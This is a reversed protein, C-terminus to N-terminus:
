KGINVSCDSSRSSTRDNQQRSSEQSPALLNASLPPMSERTGISIAKGNSYDTESAVSQSPRSSGFQRSEYDKTMRDRVDTSQERAWDQMNRLRKYAEKFDDIDDLTGSKLRCQYYNTKGTKEEVYAYHGYINYYLGNTSASVVSAEGHEDEQGIYNLAKNRAYVMAAGEYGSKREALHLDEDTKKFEVVVHPLALSTSSEKVLTAAGGLEQLTPPFTTKHYGEVYNPKPASLKNNFGVNKPYDAWQADVKAFHGQEMDQLDGRKLVETCFLLLLDAQSEANFYRRVYGRYQSNTPSASNRSMDLYDQVESKNKPPHIGARMAHVVGNARLKDEYGSQTTSITKTMTSTSTVIEHNYPTIASRVDSAKNSDSMKEFLRLNEETLPAPSCKIEAEVAQGPSRVATLSILKQMLFEFCLMQPILM